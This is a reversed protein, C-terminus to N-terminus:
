GDGKEKWHRARAEALHATQAGIGHEDACDIIEQFVTEASELRTLLWPIDERAHLIFEANAELPLLYGSVRCLPETHTVSGISLGPAAELKGQMPKGTGYRGWPGETAKEEREWIEAIRDSM